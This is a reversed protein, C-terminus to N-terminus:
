IFGPYRVFMDVSSYVLLVRVTGPVTYV